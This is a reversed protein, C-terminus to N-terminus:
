VPLNAPAATKKSPIRELSPTAAVSGPFHYITALEEVSMVLPKRAIRRYFYSRRKYAM